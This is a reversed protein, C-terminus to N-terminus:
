EYFFFYSVFPGGGVIMMELRFFLFSSHMHGERPLPHATSCSSSSMFVLIVRGAGSDNGSVDSLFLSWGGM